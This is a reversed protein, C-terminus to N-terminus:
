RRIFLKSHSLFWEKQEHYKADLTEDVEMHKDQISLIFGGFTIAKSPNLILKKSSVGEKLIDIVVQDGLAHEFSVDYGNILDLNADLRAKVWTAYAKSSVFSKLKNEIEKFILAAMDNREQILRENYGLGIQNLEEQYEIQVDKLEKAMQVQKKINIDDSVKKVERHYLYDIEKELKKIQSDSEKQIAKEFYRRLQDENYYAM